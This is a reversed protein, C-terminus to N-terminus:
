LGSSRYHCGRYASGSLRVLVLVLMFNSRDRRVLSWLGGAHSVVELGFTKDINSRQAQLINEVSGAGSRM